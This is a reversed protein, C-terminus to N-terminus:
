LKRTKNMYYCNEGANQALLSANENAFNCNGLGQVFVFIREEEVGAV